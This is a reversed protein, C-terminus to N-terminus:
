EQSYSKILPKFAEISTQIEPWQLASEFAAYAMTKSLDQGGHRRVLKPLQNLDYNKDFAILREKALGPINLSLLAEVWTLKIGQIEKIVGSLTKDWNEDAVIKPKPFISKLKEVTLTFFDQPRDLIGNDFPVSLVFQKLREVGLHRLKRLNFVNKSTCYVLQESIRGPCNHNPCTGKIGDLVLEKDCVPCHSPISIKKAGPLRDEVSAGIVTPIVDGSRQVFITDKHHLDLSRVKGPNHLLAFQYWVGSISVPAFKIVPILQGSRGIKWEVKELKTTAVAPSFKYAIAWNPSKKGKGLIDRYKPEEVKLVAGDIAYNLASRRNQIKDIADFVQRYESDTPKIAILDRSAVRFGGVIRLWDFIEDQSHFLSSKGSPIYEVCENVGYVVLTLSQLGRASILGAAAHRPTPYPKSGNRELLKNLEDLDSKLVLLEGIIELYQPPSSIPSVYGKDADSWQDRHEVDIEMPISKIKDGRKYIPRIADILDFGSYGDGRLVLHTLKGYEYILKAAVGDFKEEIRLHFTKGIKKQTRTLWKKLDPFNHLKGLSQMKNVHRFKPMGALSTPGEGVEIKKTISNKLRLRPYLHEYDELRACLEDYERDSIPSKGNNYYRSNCDLLFDNLRSLLEKVEEEEEPWTKRDIVFEKVLQNLEVNTLM